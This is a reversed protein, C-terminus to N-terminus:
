VGSANERECVKRVKVGAWVCTILVKRFPWPTVEFELFGPARMRELGWVLLPLLLQLVLNPRQL